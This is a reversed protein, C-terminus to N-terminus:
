GLGALARRGALELTAEPTVLHFPGGPVARYARELPATRFSAAGGALELAPDTVARAETVVHREATTVTLLTAEDAAEVLEGAAQGAAGAAQQRPPQALQLAGTGDDV